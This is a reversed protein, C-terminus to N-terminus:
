ASCTKIAYNNHLASCAYARPAHPRVHAMPVHLGAFGCVHMTPTQLPTAMARLPPPCPDPLLNRGVRTPVLFGCLRSDWTSGM